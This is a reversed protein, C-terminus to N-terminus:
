FIWFLDVRANLIDQIFRANLIDLIFQKYGLLSLENM